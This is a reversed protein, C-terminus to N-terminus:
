GFVAVINTKHFRLVYKVPFESDPCSVIEVDGHYKRMISAIEYGGSGAHGDHNLRTSFGSKFIDEPKVVNPLSTGNNEITIVVDMGQTEWSFRIKYDTRSEDTFGHAAANAVVNDFIHELADKPFSFSTLTDGDNLIITNDFLDRM